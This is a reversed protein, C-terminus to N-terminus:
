FRAAPHTNDFRPGKTAPLLECLDFKHYNPQGGLVLVHSEGIACLAALMPNVFM